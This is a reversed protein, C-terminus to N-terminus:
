NKTKWYEQLIFYSQKLREESLPVDWKEWSYLKMEQGNLESNIIKPLSSKLENNNDLLLVAIKIGDIYEKRHLHQYLEKESGNKYLDGMIERQSPDKVNLLAWPIRIELITDDESYYYDALSDYDESQPNGNGYRFEGTEYAVFDFTEGTDPRTMEKNLALQIKNFMGSNRNPITVQDSLMNLDVGYHFLFTDYYADVLLNARDKGQIDLVFDIGTNFAKLSPIEMFQENGQNPHVDFMFVPRLNEEGMHVRESLDLRLYLYREDSDVFLQELSGNSYPYLPDTEWDDIEGDVKIKLRDFGLLGFQQENTQANSWYPRRDTNDYDMTNWTRKFWEDQWTFVLGGLMDEKVIDEYLHVLINGQEEESLFGQNWGFPNVHTLGRSAPVGFEAVLIPLDHAANLDKLYGAYNNREGRHDIFETYKEELNLFDPYYPYIHYSAFMGVESVENKVKLKNPDVVALDESESPEAPHDLLDTTVWNTFSVPRIWGYQEQEYSVLEDLQWALWQEMGDANVSDIYTGNYDEQNAYKLSMNHVMEPDWEIGIIWGIVYASIDTYYSGHAHGSREEINAQGHIADVINRWETQFEEVIESSYADAEPHKERLEHLLDENFWTGHMLYIPKDHESNYRKLARYFDPPHLTYVRVTNANMEGIQEFWRYYESEKIAAEGPWTGPKGMGMNVGKIAVPEWNGNHYIEFTSGQIRASYSADGSSTSPFTQENMIKEQNEMQLIKKMMPVYARYFFSSDPSTAEFSTLAKWKSWGAFRTLSPVTNIDVFDGAFYFLNSQNKRHHIVAAFQSPIQHKKLLEKGDSTLDWDYYALVDQEDYPTVIDFWYQYPPSEELGFFGKGAETFALRLESAGVHNLKESLVVIEEKWDHVLVFGSEEYAWREGTFAEHREIMWIPLEENDRHLDEFYRGTWGTWDLSLFDTIDKRVSEETPSAFSNFEAVLTSPHTTIHKKITQWEEQLLGGYILESREGRSNPTWPLDDQYVGYTDAMYVLDTGTLSSPLPRVSHKKESDNPVFGYYDTEASYNGTNQEYKLHNLLWTLGNHERYSETPVTKDLIVVNLEQSSQISWLIFPIFIVLVFILLLLLKKM